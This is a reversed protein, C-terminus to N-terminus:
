RRPPPASGGAPAAAGADHEASQTPAVQAQNVSCAALMGGLVPVGIGLSAGRMFLRRSIRGTTHDIAM